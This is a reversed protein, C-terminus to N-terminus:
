QLRGIDILRVTGAKKQRSLSLMHVRIADATTKFSQFVWGLDEVKKYFTISHTYGVM